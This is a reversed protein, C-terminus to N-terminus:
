FDGEEAAQICADEFLKDAQDSGVVAEFQKWSLELNKSNPLSWTIYTPEFEPGSPPEGGWRPDFFGPFSAAICHLGIIFIREIYGDNLLPVEVSVTAEFDTRM